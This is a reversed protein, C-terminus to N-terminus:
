WVREKGWGGKGRVKHHGHQLEEVGLVRRARAQDAMGEVMEDLPVVLNKEARVHEPLPQHGIGGGQRGFM